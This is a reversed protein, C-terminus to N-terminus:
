DEDNTTRGGARTRMGQLIAQVELSAVGFRQLTFRAMELALELEGLVAETAGRQALRRQEEPRHTRVVISLRPNIRHAHDVIRRSTIPDPVAVVLVRARELRARELVAPVDAYGLVAPVSLEKLERIIAPDQEIVLLPFRRRQLADGIVRGVRGYGCLVAHARLPTEEEAVPVLTMGRPHALRPPLRRIIPDAVSLLPATLVISIASAALMLNFVDSSVADLEEGLRALVFSFEGAQSLAVGALLATRAPYRFLVILLAILLGKGVVIIAVTLLVLPLHTVVFGPDVFMGISVFFLGAFIDRLPEILGLIQHSLESESVVLGAVFAGLALSFGFRSSAWATGMAVLAITLIFVERNQLAAVRGLLWPLLRSGVPVVVLLFAGAKAFAWAADRALNDGGTALATLVVVLVIVGFDQVVSWSLAIRGHAAGLEGREALLRSLVAGSSIALVAGFFLSETHDWGLALGALLGVGIIALMQVVGGIIAVRGVERLEALSVHVGITFMLLIVGINALDEVATLDGVLGPTNPGIAMGGLIFGLITSQRLLVAVLAGLVAAGLALALSVLLHSSEVASGPMASLVV